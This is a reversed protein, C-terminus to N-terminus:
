FGQLGPNIQNLSWTATATGTQTWSGIAIAFSKSPDVVTYTQYLTFGTANSTMYLSVQATLNTLTVVPTGGFTATAGYTNFTFELTMPRNPAPITMTNFSYTAGANDYPTTRSTGYTYTTDSPGYSFLSLQGIGKNGLSVPKSLEIDYTVWLEGITAAAQMGFTVVSVKCLDYFKIDQNAGLNTTRVYLNRMPSETPACEIPLIASESPKTDVAWFHNLLDNKTQIVDADARYQAAMAVTGLATNTSNLADASTSKFEYCLGSFHYETFNEAIASLFPFASAVGPNVVYNTKAFATSGVIDSIFERHRFKIMEGSSHMFPVQDGTRQLLSNETLQYAGSGFITGIGSGLWKGINHGLTANGFAGGISRGVIGVAKRFPRSTKKKQASSSVDKSKRTKKSKKQPMTTHSVPVVQVICRLFGIIQHVGHLREANQKARFV